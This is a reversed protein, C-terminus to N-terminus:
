PSQRPQLATPSAVDSARFLASQPRSSTNPTSPTGSAAGLATRQPRPPMNEGFFDFRINLENNIEAAINALNVPAGQAPPTTRSM